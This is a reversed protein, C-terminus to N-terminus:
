FGDEVDDTTIFAYPLEGFYTFCMTKLFHLSIYSRLQTHKNQKIMHKYIDYVCLPTENNNLWDLPSDYKDRWNEDYSDIRDEYFSIEGYQCKVIEFWLDNNSIVRIQNLEKVNIKPNDTEIDLLCRKFCNSFEIKEKNIEDFNLESLKIM